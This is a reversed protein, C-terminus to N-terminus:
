KPAKYQAETTSQVTKQAELWELIDKKRYRVSRVCKIFPIGIGIWRDREISSESRNQIAAVTDQGFWAEIPATNFEELLQLRTRILDHEM